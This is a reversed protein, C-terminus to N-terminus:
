KDSMDAENYFDSELQKIEREYNIIQQMYSRYKGLEYILDSCIIINERAVMIINEKEEDNFIKKAYKYLQNFLSHIYAFQM